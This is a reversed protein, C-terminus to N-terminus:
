WQRIRFFGTPSAPGEAPAVASTDPTLPSLGLYPGAVNTAGQLQFVRGSGNWSLYLGPPDNTARPPALLPGPANLDTAADTVLFLADIGPSATTTPSFASLLEAAHYVVYGRDSLLDGAAFYNSQVDYFGTVTTFWCEGNGPWVYLSALGVNTTPNAPNFAAILNTGARVLVGSDSLLDGSQITRGLKKSVFNTEVSFYIEGSDMVQLAALGVGSAPNPTFNAILQANSRVLQGRASLLDGTSLPGLNESFATQQLSFLVEGGPRVDAGKLGLDPVPPQLGLAGALQANGKVIRGSASLLDGASVKNTPSNWVGATFSQTTSFWIERFPAAALDLHYQQFLSGNTQDLSVQMMPPWQRSVTQVGNTFLCENTADPGQIVVDLFVDQFVALEGGIRFTGQGTIKYSAGAPLSATFDIHDIAYQTFFPGQQLLRLEYTGRLPVLVSPRGCVPCNDILDSGEFLTFNWPVLTPGTQAFLTPTSDSLLAIIPLLGLWKCVRYNM